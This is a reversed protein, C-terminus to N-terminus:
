MGWLQDEGLLNLQVPRATGLSDAQIGEPGQWYRIAAPREPVGSHDICWVKTLDERDTEVQIRRDCNECKLNYIM